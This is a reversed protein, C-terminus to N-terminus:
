PPRKEPAPKLPAQMARTSGDFFSDMAWAMVSFYRARKGCYLSEKWTKKQLDSSPALNTSHFGDDQGGAVGGPEVGQGLVERFGEQFDPVVGDEAAQEVVDVGDWFDGFVDDNGVALEGADKLLPRSATCPWGITMGPGVPCRKRHLDQGVLGEGVFGAEAGDAVQDQGDIGVVEVFVQQHDCGVIDEVEAEAAEHFGEFLFAGRHNHAVVLGLDVFELAGADDFDVGIEADELHLFFGFDWDGVPGDRGEVDVAAFVQGEDLTGDGIAAAEISRAIQCM